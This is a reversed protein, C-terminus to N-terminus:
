LGYIRPAAGQGTNLAQCNRSLVGRALALCLSRVTPRTRTVSTGRAPVCRPSCPRSIRPATGSRRYDRAIHRRTPIALEPSSDFSCSFVAALLLWWCALAIPTNCRVPTASGEGRVSCRTNCANADSDLVAKSAICRAALPNACTATGVTDGRGAVVLGCDSRAAVLPHVAGPREWSAM